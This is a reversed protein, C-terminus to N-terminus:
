VDMALSLSANGDAADRIIAVKLAGAQCVIDLSQGAPLFHNDSASAVATPNSGFKIWANTSSVLRYRYGAVMTLQASVATVTSSTATATSILAPM